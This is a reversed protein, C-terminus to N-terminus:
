KEQCIEVFINDFHDLKFLDGFLNALKIFGRRDYIPARSDYFVYNELWNLELTTDEYLRKKYSQGCMQSDFVNGM